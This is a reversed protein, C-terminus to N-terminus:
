SDARDSSARVVPADPREHALVVYRVHDRTLGLEHAIARYGLGKARLELIPTHRERRERERAEVASRRRQKARFTGSRWDPRQRCTACAKAGQGAAFSRGCVDCKAVPLGLVRAALRELM